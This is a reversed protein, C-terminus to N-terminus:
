VMHEAHGYVLISMTGERSNSGQAKSPGASTQFREAQAEECGYDPTMAGSASVIRCGKVAGRADIALAMDQRGLLTDGVELKGSAPAAGPSFRREFTIRTFQESGSHSSKGMAATKVGAVDCDQANDPQLSSEWRCSRTEGNGAITVTVKEWWPTGSELVDSSASKEAPKATTGSNSTAALSFSSATLLALAALARIV